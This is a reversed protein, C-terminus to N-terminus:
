STYSFVSLHVDHPGVDDDVVLEHGIRQLCRAQLGLSLGDLQSQLGQKSEPLLSLDLLEAPLDGPFYVQDERLHKLSAPDVFFEILNAAQKPAQFEDRQAAFIHDDFRCPVVAFQPSQSDGHASGDVDYQCGPADDTSVLHQVAVAAEVSKFSV